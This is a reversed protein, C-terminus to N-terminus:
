GKVAVNGEVKDMEDDKKQYETTFLNYNVFFNLVGDVVEYNMKIGAIPRDDGEVTVYKLCKLMREAVGNCECQKERGKPFYQICFQNTWSYREGQLRESAHNVCFIFFCHKELGQELEEMHIEYEDGFKGNLAASIAEIMENIM